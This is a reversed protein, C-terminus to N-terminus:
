NLFVVVNQEKRTTTLKILVILVILQDFNPTWMSTQPTIRVEFRSVKVEFRSVRVEFRSVRVEFRSVKVEFRSVKVELEAKREIESFIVNLHPNYSCTYM